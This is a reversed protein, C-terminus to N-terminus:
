DEQCVTTKRETYKLYHEYMLKELIKRFWNGREKSFDGPFSKTKKKRKRQKVM